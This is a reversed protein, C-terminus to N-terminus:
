ACGGVLGQAEFLSRRLRRGPIPWAVPGDHDLRADQSRCRHQIRDCCCLSVYWWRADPPLSSLRYDNCMLRGDHEYPHWMGSYISGSGTFLDLAGKGRNNIGHHVLRKNEVLEVLGHGALELHTPDLASIEDVLRSIIRKKISEFLM